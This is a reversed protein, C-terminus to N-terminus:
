HKIGSEVIDMKGYKNLEYRKTMEFVVPTTLLVHVSSTFVGGIMPLVIPIMVDSGVGNSWLVPILGLLAVCVTMIKPRLRQAAGRYVFERLDEDTISERSNGKIAILDLMAEHLYIVMFIGTQVAIGFLAIFGVAVAVSLNIHYFYIMYVGGVLAFPVTIISLLAERISKYVMYLVMFIIFLVIPIILKLTNAAHIQNEWQGSWEIFYGKPLKKITENIKNQADNVTSGLDRGRVNFLVAGRLLSNESQIM